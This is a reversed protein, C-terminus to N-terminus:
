PTIFNFLGNLKVVSLLLYDRLRAQIRAGVSLGEGRRARILDLTMALGAGVALVLWFFKGASSFLLAGVGLMLPVQWCGAPM